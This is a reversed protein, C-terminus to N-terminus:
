EWSSGSGFDMESPGFFRDRGGAAVHQQPAHPCSWHCSDSTYIPQINDPRPVCAEPMDFPIEGRADGEWANPQHIRQLEELILHCSTDFLLLPNHHCTPILLVYICM